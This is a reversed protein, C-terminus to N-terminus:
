APSSRRATSGSRARRAPAATASSRPARHPGSRRAARRRPHAAARGPPPQEKGNVRLAVPVPGPGVVAAAAGTATEAPLCAELTAAGRRELATGFLFGRRSLRARAEDDGKTRKM